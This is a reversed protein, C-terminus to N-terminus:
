PDRSRRRVARALAITVVLLIVAISLAADKAPTSAFGCGCGTTTQAGGAQAQGAGANAGDGALPITVQGGAPVDVMSIVVSGYSEAGDARAGTVPVRIAATSRLTITRDPGVTAVLGSSPLATHARLRAAVDSMSWTVLPLVRLARYKDLLKDLLDTLLTHTGDYARLNAQHFMWPTLDGALLHELLRDSERDLIEDYGLARGVVAGELANFMQVWDDPVSVNAYLETPIRPILLVAPVVADTLATNAVPPNCGAYSADCVVQQIGWDAAATMVQANVLGSVDPTVLSNRDYPGFKYKTMVDDNQTLEATMRAYDAVDLRHHDFTHSVWQFRQGVERAAQTLPDDDRVEVGNFPLTLSLTGGAPGAVAQDQWRAANRLDDGGLRFTTGDHQVTGIFIDDVQAGFAARKEGVYVGRSVWSAVGPLLQRSHAAGPAQDFTLLMVEHGDPFARVAVAAHGADDVLLPTLSPDNPAAVQAAVGAVAVPAASAYWGFVAAGAKTYTLTLPAASTDVTEATGFGLSSDAPADLCVSRVQFATLYSALAAPAAPGPLNAGSCDAVIVGNWLGHTASDSLSTSALAADAVVTYPIGTTDLEVTLARLASDHGDVSVVLLRADVSVQPAAGAAASREVLPRLAAAWRAYRGIVM